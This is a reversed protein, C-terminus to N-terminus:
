PPDRGARALAPDLLVRPLSGHGGAGAAKLSSEGRGTGPLLLAVPRGLKAQVLLAHLWPLAGIPCRAPTGSTDQVPM